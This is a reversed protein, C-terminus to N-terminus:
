EADWIMIAWKAAPRLGARLYVKQAHNETGTFLSTFAAGEEVFAQMLRNFLVTAIGRGGWEPDTCIGTFWGRGSKQKDVPGTFGIIKGDKVATLIPRPGEPRRGDPWHEPDDNPEGTHWAAIEKKLVNRWYESGVRDCMGDFEEGMGVQWVGTTIGEAELAKVHEDLEPNWQYTSLDIYMAVEHHYDRLGRGMLFAYGAGDEHVGPANNHDHGNAGPIFWELHLPNSGSVSLRKKGIETTLQKMREVLATGAGQNRYPADVLVLTLFLPTNEHTQGPLFSTLASAQAFGAPVGDAEAVFAYRGDGFFRSLMDDASLPKYLIEGADFCRQMVGAAWAADTKEFPRISIAM